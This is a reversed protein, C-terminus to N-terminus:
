AAMYKLGPTGEIRGLDRGSMYKKSCRLPIVAELLVDQLILKKISDLVFFDIM